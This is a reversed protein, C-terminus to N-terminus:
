GTSGGKLMADLALRERTAKWNAEAERRAKLDPKVGPAPAGILHHLHAPYWVLLQTAADTDLAMTSLPLPPRVLHGQWRIEGDLAGTVAHCPAELITSAPISASGCAWPERLMFRMTSRFEDFM